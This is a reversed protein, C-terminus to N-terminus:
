ISSFYYRCDLFIIRELKLTLCIYRKIMCKFNSLIEAIDLYCLLFYISSTHLIHFVSYCPYLVFETFKLLRLVIPRPKKFKSEIRECYTRRLQRIILFAVLILLTSSSRNLHSCLLYRNRTYKILM